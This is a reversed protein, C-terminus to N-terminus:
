FLGLINDSAEELRTPKNCVWFTIPIGALGPARGMYTSFLGLIYHSAAGFGLIGLSLPLPTEIPNGYGLIIVGRFDFITSQHKKVLNESWM